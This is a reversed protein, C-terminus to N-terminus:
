KLQLTDTKSFDFLVPIQLSTNPSSNGFRDGAAKAAVAKAKDPVFKPVADVAYALWEAVTIKKDVPKWDAKGEELGDQTLVYTLLGEHLSDYEHAVEDSQSAALIRMRKDYALQGLGRSGLPGPKFDGAQVSEASFCADLVLTMQGADIPRLWDALEDASIATKLLADDVARCSGQVDSPLIYFEGGEASYGHGSFSMFFVDDPTAQRAIAALQQRITEKGAPAADGGAASELKAAEVDYGQRVLRETLEASMKEADNVSYSLECRSAAYHNVGIQLLFARPKVESKPAAAKPEYELSATASKIRESNFAYATFTVNKGDSKLLVDHFTYNCDRLAGEIYGGNVRRERTGDGACAATVDVYGSGVMHGDRFLRLDELGSAQSNVKEFHSHAHVVVDVRDPKGSPTVRKVEVDPQVRNKIETISRVKPLKEQQGKIITALLGPTYYDRMFIELPLTHMPDDPLLWHLPAGGDLDNTDFRGLPSVIVWQDEGYAYLVALQDGSAVDWVRTSGDASGSFASRGDLSFAVSSIFSSHGALTRLEQGSAVDWLKVTQDHSGSALTRGDSSFAVSTVKNTHGTLIRLERGNAVDWLAITSDDSASALSRGDSSFAISSIWNARGTLTRLEGGSAVDWLKITNDYGASALTRGDPSFVVSTAYSVVGTPGTLTRLNRGSAVDWFEITHDQSGSALIKGDPSFAVSSIVSSHGALIHLERGRAVDWLRISRDVSGSALTRCDPSFAVSTVWGTHGRLIHLERGNAVGWLKITGDQSGSALTTCDPSFAGSVAASTHGTLTHLERGSAVEWLKISNGVSGSGLTLGNPSFTVSAIEGTRDTLTRLERGAAVDWLKIIGNKSGSALTQGDPSFAVSVVTSTHGTLTRLERRSAVDWLKITRDVSGSALTGGTSFAISFIGGDHGTLSGLEHSNALDWLTITHDVSGVASTRGDPSFAVSVVWGTHGDLTRLERGSAVDWLKIGHNSNGSVLTRGDPTFAVSLVWSNRNILTRLERGNAADWLKITGDHSGSALTRGDPSFVVSTVWDTHGTLTRLERSSAVDWLKITHDQSGSALTRGDPSFAVSFVGSTHGTEVVLEAKQGHAVVGCLMVVGTAVGIKRIQNNRMAAGGEEALCM